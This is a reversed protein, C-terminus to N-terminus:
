WEAIPSPIFLSLYNSNQVWTNNHPQSSKKCWLLAHAIIEEWEVNVYILFSVSVSVIKEVAECVNGYVIVPISDYENIKYM